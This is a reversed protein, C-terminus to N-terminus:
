NIVAALLFVRCKFSGPRTVTLKPTRATTDSGEWLLGPALNSGFSALNPPLVFSNKESINYSSNIGQSSICSVDIHITIIKWILISIKLSWPLFKQFFFFM